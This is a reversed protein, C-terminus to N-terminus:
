CLLGGSPVEYSVREPRYGRSIAEEFIEEEARAALEAREDDSLLSTNDHDFLHMCYFELIYLCDFKAAIHWIQLFQLQKPTFEESDIM